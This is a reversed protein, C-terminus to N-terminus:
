TLQEPSRNPDRLRPGCRLWALRPMDSHGFTRIVSHSFSQIVSHGFSRIDSHSFSQIVSDVTLQWITLILTSGNYYIYVFINFDFRNTNKIFRLRPRSPSLLCVNNIIEWKAYKGFCIYIKTNPTMNHAM